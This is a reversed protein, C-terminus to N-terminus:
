ITGVGQSSASSIPSRAIGATIRVSTSVYTGSPIVTNPKAYYHYVKSVSDARDSFLLSESLDQERYFNKPGGLTEPMTDITACHLVPRGAAFDTGWRAVGVGPYHVSNSGDKSATILVDDSALAAIKCHPTTDANSPMMFLYTAEQETDAFFRFRQSLKLGKKTFNHQMQIGAILTSSAIHTGSLAQVMVFEDCEVPEDLPLDRWAQISDADKGYIYTRAQITLASGTEGHDPIWNFPDTSGEPRCKIAFEYVSGSMLLSSGGQLTGVQSYNVFRATDGTGGRIWGRATATPTNFPDQGLFEGRVTYTGRSLGRAIWVDRNGAVSAFVSVKKEAVIEGSASVVQINWLGGRDDTYFSLRVDEADSASNFSFVAGVETTFWNPDSETWAGAVDGTALSYYSNSPDYSLGAKITHLKLLGDSDERL